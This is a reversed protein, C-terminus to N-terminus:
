QTLPSIMKATNTTGPHPMNNYVGSGSEPSKVEVNQTGTQMSQQTQVAPTAQPQPAMTENENACGSLFVLFSMTSLVLLLIRM